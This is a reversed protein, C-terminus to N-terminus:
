SLFGLFNVLWSDGVRTLKFVVIHRETAYRNPSAGESPITIGSSIVIGADVQVRSANQSKAKAKIVRWGNTRFRGGNAYVQKIPLILGDCTKCDASSLRAVASVGRGRLADNRAAVWAKVTDVPGRDDSASPSESASASVPSSPAIRPKPEGGSCGALVGTALGTSLVLGVAVSATRSRVM